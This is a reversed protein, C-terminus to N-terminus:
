ERVEKKSIILSQYVHVLVDQGAGFYYLIVILTFILQLRIEGNNNYRRASTTVSNKLVTFGNVKRIDRVIKQDEMITLSEDYGGVKEFLEKKVFLSQDGFRFLTLSFQTCWSYFRLAPHASDFSLRFCGAGNGDNVAANIQNIFNKPPTTDAHLFYFITGSAGRAGENMQVARGKQECQIIKVSHKRAIGLTNDTSGGDAIIIEVSSAETNKKLYTLLPALKEEENIAPIIISIHPDSM